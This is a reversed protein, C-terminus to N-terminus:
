ESPPEEGREFWQPFRLKADVAFGRVAAAMRTAREGRPVRARLTRLAELWRGFRADSFLAELDERIRRLTGPSAGGSAFAITLGPVDVVAPNVFTCWEPRDLTCVLRGRAVSWRFVRESLADDGPAVFVIAARELDEDTVSRSEVRLAEGAAATIASLRADDPPCGLLTVRAGAALLRQVKGLTETSVGVLLAERGHVELEIPL